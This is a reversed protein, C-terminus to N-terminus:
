PNSRRTSPHSGAWQLWAAIPTCYLLGRGGHWARALAVPRPRGAVHAWIGCGSLGRPHVDSESWRVALDDPRHECTTPSGAHAAALLDFRTGRISSSRFHGAPFGYVTLQHGPQVDAALYSWHLAELGRRAVEQRDLEIWAVDPGERPGLGFGEVRLPDARYRGRPVVRIARVGCVGDLNHRATAVVVRGAGGHGDALRVLLGSGVHVRGREEVLLAVSVDHLLRLSSALVFSM